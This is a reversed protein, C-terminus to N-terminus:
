RFTERRIPQVDTERVTLAAVSPNVLQPPYDRAHPRVIIRHVLAGDTTTANTAMTALRMRLLFRFSDRLPSSRGASQHHYWVHGKDLDLQTFRTVPHGRTMPRYMMLIQGYRPQTTVAYLVDDSNGHGTVSSTDLHLTTLQAYGHQRVETPENLKLRPPSVTGPLVHIAVGTRLSRRGNSIRLFLEDHSGGGGHHQYAVACHEVDNWRFTETAAGGDVMTLNGHAPGGRLLRLEVREV